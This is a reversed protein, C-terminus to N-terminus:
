GMGRILWNLLSFLSDVGFIFLAALMCVIIVIITNNTTSKPTPWVVKKFESKADKFYKVIGKKQKKSSKKSKDGKADKGDKGEKPKKTQTEATKTVSVDEPAQADASKSLEIDNAM